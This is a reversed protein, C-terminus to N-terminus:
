DCRRLLIRKGQPLLLAIRDKDLIRLTYALRARVQGTNFEDVLRYEIEGLKVATLNRYDRVGGGTDFRRSGQFAMFRSGCTAAPGEGSVNEYTWRGSVPYSAAIAYGALVPLAAIAVTLCIACLNRDRGIM